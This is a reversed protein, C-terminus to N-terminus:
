QPLEASQLSGELEQTLCELISTIMRATMYSKVQESQIPTQMDKESLPWFRKLRPDAAFKREACTCVSATNIPKAVLSLSMEQQSAIQQVLRACTPRLARLLQDLRAGGPEPQQAASASAFMALICLTATRICTSPHLNM